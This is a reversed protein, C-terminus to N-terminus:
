LCPKRGEGVRVGLGVCEPGRSDQKGEHERSRVHPETQVELLSVGARGRRHKETKLGRITTKIEFWGRGMKAWSGM